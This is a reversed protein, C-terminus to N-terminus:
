DNYIDEKPDHLWAFGGKKENAILVEADTMEKKACASDEVNYKLRIFTGSVRVPANPEQSIIRQIRPYPLLTTMFLNNPLYGSSMSDVSCFSKAKM